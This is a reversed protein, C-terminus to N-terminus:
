ANEEFLDYTASALENNLKRILIKRKAPEDEWYLKRATDAFERLLQDKKTDLEALTM